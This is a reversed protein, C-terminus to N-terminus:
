HYMEDVELGFIEKQSIEMEKLARELKQVLSIEDGSLSYKSKGSVEMGFTDNVLLLILEIDKVSLDIKM